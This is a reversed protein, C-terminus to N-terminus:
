LRDLGVGWSFEAIIRLGFHTSSAKTTSADTPQQWLRWHQRFSENLARGIPSEGAGHQGGPLPGIMWDGIVPLMGGAPTAIWGPKQNGSACEGFPGDWRDGNPESEGVTV